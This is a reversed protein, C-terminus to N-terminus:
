YKLNPQHHNIEEITEFGEKGGFFLANTGKERIFRLKKGNHDTITFDKVLKDWYERKEDENHDANFTPRLIYNLAEAEEETMLQMLSKHNKLYHCIETIDDLTEETETLRVIYM